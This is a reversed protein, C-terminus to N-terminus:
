SVVLADPDPHGQRRLARAYWSDRSLLEDHSGSGSGSIRGAEPVAIRDANFVLALRHAVLIITVGRDRRLRDLADRFARESEADLNSTPEDLLLMRAGAALARALDLRQLQGRSLRVGDPGIRTDYGHPLAALFDHAGAMRAAAEIRTRTPASCGYGIHGAATDALVEPTQPVCAFAGRLSALSFRYISVGDFLIEGGTRDRLRPLLELLTSKGAGSPGIIATLGGAPIQLDVGRLAFASAGEYRFTVGRLEIASALPPLLSAGGDDEATARLGELRRRVAELSGRLTLAQRRARQLNRIRPVSRFVVGAFLTIAVTSLAFVETGLYFVLLLALVGGADVLVKM